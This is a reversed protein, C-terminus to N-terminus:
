LGTAGDIAQRILDAHGVHRATEEIMHLMIWRLSYHTGPDTRRSTSVSLDDLDHAAVVERSRDCAALYLGILYEPEDDLATRFEWNPDDDWDIDTFPAPVPRGDMDDQFWSDEVLALHKLLGAITLDSSAVTTALQDKTLGEALRVMTARYYDLFQNLSEREGVRLAPEIREVMGAVM